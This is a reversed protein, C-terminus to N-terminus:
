NKGLIISEVGNECAHDALCGLGSIFSDCGEIGFRKSTTFRNKLFLNFQESRCLRDFTKKKDNNSIPSLGL